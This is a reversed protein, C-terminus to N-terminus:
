NKLWRCYLKSVGLHDLTVSNPALKGRSVRLPKLSFGIVVTGLEWGGQKSKGPTRQHPSLLQRDPVHSRPPPPDGAALACWLPQSFVSSPSCPGWSWICSPTGMWIAGFKVTCSAKCQTVDSFQGYRSQQMHFKHCNQTPHQEMANCALM